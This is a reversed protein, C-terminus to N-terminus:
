YVRLHFLKNMFLSIQGACNTSQIKPHDVINKQVDQSTKKLTKKGLNNSKQTKTPIPLYPTNYKIRHTLQTPNGRRNETDPSM